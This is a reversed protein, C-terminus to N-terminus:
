VLENVCEFVRFRVSRTAGDFAGECVCFCDNLWLYREDAAVFTGAARTDRHPGGDLLTSLGTLEFVIRAGDDTAIAGHLAPLTTGDARVRPHNTWRVAGRLRPGTARGSGTGYLRGDLGGPRIDDVDGEFALELECLPELRM